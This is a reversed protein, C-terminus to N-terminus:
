IGLAHGIGSSRLLVVTFLTLLIWGVGAILFAPTHVNIRNGRDTMGFTYDDIQSPFWILLLAVGEVILVAWPGARKPWAAWLSMAVMALSLSRGITQM